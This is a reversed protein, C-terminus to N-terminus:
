KLRNLKKCLVQLMTKKLNIESFASNYVNKALLSLIYLIEIYIKIQYVSLNTKLDNILNVSKKQDKIICNLHICYM